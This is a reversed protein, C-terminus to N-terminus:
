KAAHVQRRGDESAVARFETMGLNRKVSALSTGVISDAVSVPCQWYRTDFDDLCLSPM